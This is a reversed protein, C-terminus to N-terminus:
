SEIKYTRSPDIYECFSDIERMENPKGSPLYGRLNSYIYRIIVKKKSFGDIRGKRLQNSSSSTYIVLDNEILENGLFDVM